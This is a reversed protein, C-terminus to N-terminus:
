SVSLLKEKIRNAVESAFAPNALDLDEVHEFIVDSSFSKTGVSRVMDMAKWEDFDTVPRGYPILMVLIIGVISGEKAKALATVLGVEALFKEKADVTRTIRKVGIGYKKGQHSIVLYLAVDGLSTDIRREPQAEIEREALSDSLLKVFDRMAFTSEHQIRYLSRTVQKRLAPSRVLDWLDVKESKTYKRERGVKRSSVLKKVELYKMAEYVTPLTRGTAKALETVTVPSDSESVRTLMEFALPKSALEGKLDSDAEEPM